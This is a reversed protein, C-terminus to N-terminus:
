EEPEYGADTLWVKISEVDTETEDYEVVVRTSPYAGDLGIVGRQIRGVVALSQFCGQCHVAPLDAAYKAM